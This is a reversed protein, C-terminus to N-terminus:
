ARMTGRGNPLLPKINSHKIQVDVDALPPFRIEFFERGEKTLLEYCWKGERQVALKPLIKEIPQEGFRHPFTLYKQTPKFQHLWRALREAETSLKLTAMGLEM